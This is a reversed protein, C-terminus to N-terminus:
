NLIPLNFEVKTGLPNNEKDVLDTTKVGIKKGYISNLLEIRTETLKSGHSKHNKRNKSNLKGAHIRGVGNDAIICQISDAIYNLKIDIKGKGNKKQIGHIISNEVYPQLLLTPIKFMYPDIEEDVEIRYELKNNLRLAELELYLRLARLENDITVIKSQSNDLTLRLLGAFKLLYESSAEKNNNLIFGHISNLINFIFHPNMQSRLNEQSLEAIKLQNRLKIRQIITISIFLAFLLCGGLLVIASRNKRIIGEQRTIETKSSQILNELEHIKKRQRDTNENSKLSQLTQYNLLASQFNGQVSDIYYLYDYIQLKLENSNLKKAINLGDQFYQKSVNYQNNYLKQYGLHILITAEDEIYDNIKSLQLAKKYCTDAPLIKNTLFFINGFAILNKILGETYNYEQNIAYSHKVSELAETYLEQDTYVAAINQYIFGQQIISNHRIAVELANNLHSYAKSYLGMNRYITSLNNEIAIIGKLYDIQLYFKGSEKYYEIAEEVKGTQLQVNGLNYLSRAIYLTDDTKKALKFSELFSKEALSYNALNLNVAGIISHCRGANKHNKTKDFVILAQKAYRLAENVDTFYYERALKFLLEGRTNEDNIHQLEYKLSDTLNEPHPTSYISCTNLILLLLINNIKRNDLLNSLVPLKIKLPSQCM